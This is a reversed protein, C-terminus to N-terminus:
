LRIGARLRLLQKLFKLGNKLNGKSSGANRAAFCLPVEAHSLQHTVLLELLIKFGDAQLLDPDVASRRVMFCGTMPDTVRRLCVPFLVQALLTCLRSVAHRLPGNLGSASGGPVYRSAIVLDVASSNLVALMAPIVDAPHQGDADCVAVVSEPKAMRIGATVAGSLGDRRDQEPRHEVHIDLEPHNPGVAYSVNKTRDDPSDDVIIVRAGPVCAALAEYLSPISAEENYTPIIVTLDHLTFIV